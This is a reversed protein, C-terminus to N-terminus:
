RSLCHCADEERSDNNICQKPHLILLWNGSSQLSYLVSIWNREWPWEHQWRDKNEGHNIWLECNAICWYVRKEELLMYWQSHFITISLNAWTTTKTQYAIAQLTFSYYSWHSAIQTVQFASYLDLGSDDGRMQICLSSVLLFIWVRFSSKPFEITASLNLNKYREPIRAKLLLMTIQMLSFLYRQLIFFDENFYHLLVLGHYKRFIRHLVIHKIKHVSVGHLKVAAPLINCTIYDDNARM